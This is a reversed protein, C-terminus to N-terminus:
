TDHMINKNMIRNKAGMFITGAAMTIRAKIEILRSLNLNSM